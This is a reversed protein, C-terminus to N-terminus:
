SRTKAWDLETIEIFERYIKYYFECTHNLFRLAFHRWCCFCCCCWCSLVGLDFFGGPLGTLLGGGPFLGDIAVVGVGVAATGAVVGRNTDFNFNIASRVEFRKGSLIWVKQSSFLKRIKWSTEWLKKGELFVKHFDDLGLWFEYKMGWPGLYFFFLEM